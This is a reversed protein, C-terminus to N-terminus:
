SWDKAGGIEHDNAYAAQEAEHYFTRLGCVANFADHALKKEQEWEDQNEAPGADLDQVLQMLYEATTDLTTM